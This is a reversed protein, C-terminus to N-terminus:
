KQRTHWAVSREVERMVEEVIVMLEARSAVYDYRLRNVDPGPNTQVLHLRQAARRMIRDRLRRWAEPPIVQWEPLNPEKLVLGVSM